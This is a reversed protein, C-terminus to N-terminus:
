KNSEYQNITVQQLQNIQGQRLTIGSSVRSYHCSTNKQKYKKKQPTPTDHWFNLSM